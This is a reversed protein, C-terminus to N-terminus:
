KLDLLPTRVKAAVSCDVFVGRSRRQYDAVLQYIFPMELVEGPSLGHRDYGPPFLYGNHMEWGQWGPWPLYGALIALLRVATPNPVRDSRWRRFTGPSVLCAAAADHTTLGALHQLDRLMTVNGLYGQHLIEASDRM